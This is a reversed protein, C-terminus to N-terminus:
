VNTKKEKDTIFYDVYVGEYAFIDFGAKDLHDIFDMTITMMDQVKKAEALRRQETKKRDNIM